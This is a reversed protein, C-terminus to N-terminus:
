VLALLLLPPTYSVLSVAEGFTASFAHLVQVAPSFCNILTRNSERFRIFANERQRLLRLIADPTNCRQLEAAFPNTSFDIGMRDAYDGLADIILQLNSSSITPHGTVGTSPSSMFAAYQQNSSSPHLRTLSFPACPVSRYEGDRGLDRRLSIDVM